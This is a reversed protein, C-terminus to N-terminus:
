LSYVKRLTEVNVPRVDGEGLRHLSAVCLGFAKELASVADEGCILARAQCSSSFSSFLWHSINLAQSAHVEQPKHKKQEYLSSFLSLLQFYTPQM